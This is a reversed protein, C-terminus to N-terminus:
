LDSISWWAMGMRLAEPGSPDQKLPPKTLDPCGLLWVMPVGLISRGSRTAPQGSSGRPPRKRPLVLVPTEFVRRPLSPRTQKTSTEPVTTPAADARRM